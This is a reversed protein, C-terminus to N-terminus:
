TRFRPLNRVLERETNIQNVFGNNYNESGPNASICLVIIAVCVEIEDPSEHRFRPALRKLYMGPITKVLLYIGVGPSFTIIVTSGSFILAIRAVCYL